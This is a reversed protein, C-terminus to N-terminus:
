EFRVTETNSDLGDRDFVMAELTYDGFRSCPADSYELHADAFSGVCEFDLCVFLDDSWLVEDTTPDMAWVSGRRVDAPGQPDDYTAELFCTAGEQRLTAQLLVPANTDFDIDGSGVDVPELDGEGDLKGSACGGLGAALVVGALIRAPSSLPAVCRFDLM